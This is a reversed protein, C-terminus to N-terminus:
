VKSQGGVTFMRSTFCVVDADVGNRVQLVDIKLLKNFDGAIDQPNVQCLSDKFAQLSQGFKELDEQCVSAWSDASLSEIVKAM